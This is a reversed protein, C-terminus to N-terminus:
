KFRVMKDYPLITSYGRKNFYHEVYDQEGTAMIFDGGWAGLSKISGKFGNFYRQKVPALQITSSIITEHEIILKEFSELSDAKTFELTLESISKITGKRKSKDTNLTRYRQIGDRSNQKKNLHVFFLNKSFLPQFDVLEVKPDQHNLEYILSQDHYACAIDYGSGKFSNWLLTYPNIEVWQAINTILTSSSGLGWDTPFELTTEVNYGQNPNLFEPNLRQAEELIKILTQIKKIDEKSSQNGTIASIKTIDTIDLTITFWQQGTNLIARWHIQGPNGEIISLSQGYNSPVALAKAGDLVVYEGTILLKGNSRYKRM